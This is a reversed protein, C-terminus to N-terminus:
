GCAGAASGCMGPIDEETLQKPPAAKPEPHSPASASPPEAQAMNRFMDPQMDQILVQLLMMVRQDQSYRRADPCVAWGACAWKSFNKPNKQLDAVIQMFDPQAIFPALQPSRAIVNLLDPRGFMSSFIDM